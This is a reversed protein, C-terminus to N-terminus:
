KALLKMKKPIVLRLVAALSCALLFIAGIGAIAALTYGVVTPAPGMEVRWNLAQSLYLIAPGAVMLSAGGLVRVLGRDSLRLMAAAAFLMLISFLYIPNM